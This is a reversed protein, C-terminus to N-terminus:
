TSNRLKPDLADRLGDGIFNLALTTLMICFGPVLMLWPAVNMYARADFLMRGWTAAPPPVGLGLFSLAAELIIFQAFGFTFLVLAPAAVSPLIHKRLIRATPVGNCIAATVFDRDKISKVAVTVTRAYVMWGTAVMVIVINQFSPGLISALALALLIMPFSLFVDVVRMMVAETKKGFYGAVLGWFVGFIMSFLSAFGAASLSVRAGYVTRSLVDRGLDDTGLLYAWNGEAEWAPPLLSYALRQKTPSQPVLLPGAAAGVILVVLIVLGIVALKRRFFAQFIDEWQKFFRPNNERNQGNASNEM